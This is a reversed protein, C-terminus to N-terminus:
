SVSSEAARTSDAPTMPSRAMASANAYGQDTAVEVLHHLSGALGRELGVRSWEMGDICAHALFRAADALDEFMTILADFIVPEMVNLELEGAAVALDVTHGCGRVRQSLQIVLEPIVPNIKGPMISSGAQRPPLRLEGLGGTPGSSLLRLDRAIKEVTVTSRVIAAALASYPDLHALADFFDPAVTCKTGAIENLHFVAASAFGPPAGVSTGIATAGFPVAALDAVTSQIGARGRAVARAQARHTEGVTLPVADQLCTRGLRVLDNNAEAQLLLSAELEDLAGTADTALEAVALSMATPYTDNTSQSRNVHDNPHVDVQEGRDRLLQSARAALVENLNMNTSTGGGGQLLAIPFQDHHSGGAVEKAAEAIGQGIPATIVGLQVNALAAAGKVRAYASVFQPVDALRRGHEPFNLLALATQPGYLTDPAREAAPSSTPNSM